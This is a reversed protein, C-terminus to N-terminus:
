FTNTIKSFDTSNYYKGNNILITIQYLIKNILNNNLLVSYNNEINNNNNKEIKLYVKKNKFNFMFQNDYNRTIDDTESYIIDKEIKCYYLINNNFLTDIKIKDKFQNNFFKIFENSIYIHNNLLSDSINYTNYNFSFKILNNSILHKTFSLICNLINEDNIKYNEHIIKYNTNKLSVNKINELRIYPGGVLSEVQLYNDLEYCFLSWLNINEELYLSPITTSLPGRGLCCHKFEKARSRSISPIHSHMYNSNWQDTDYTAKCFTVDEILTGNQKIKFRAFIDKIIVSKNNDNTVKVKPFHITVRCQFYNKIKDLIFSEILIIEDNTLNLDNNLLISDKLNKILKNIVQNKNEFSENVIIKKVSDIDFINFNEDNFLLIYESREKGYYHNIDSIVQPIKGVLKLSLNQIFENLSKSM